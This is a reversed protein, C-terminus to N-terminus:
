TAHLIIYLSLTELTAHLHYYLFSIIATSILHTHQFYTFRSSLLTVVLKLISVGESAVACIGKLSFISGLASAVRLGNPQM